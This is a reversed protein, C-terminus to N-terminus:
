DRIAINVTIGFENWSYEGTVKNETVGMEYFMSGSVRTNFRYTASPRLKWTSNQQTEQFSTQNYQKQFTKSSSKDFSLTFNIENKFTAGKFPWIPIPIQFGGKTSYSASISFSSNESKTAGGGSTFNFSSSQNLRITSSVGALWSISVGILPQYNHSFTESSPILKGQDLDWRKTTSYKGSRSHDVSMTKAFEQFFLFKEVGTIKVSWDPILSRMDGWVGKFKDKPNDGLALFTISENGSKNNDNRTETINYDHSFTTRVNKIIDFNLSTRLSRSDTISPGIIFGNTLTTDQGVGTDNTLGFQYRWGPIDLVYSHNVSQDWNYSTQIQKWANFFEYIWILPNPFKTKSKSDQEEEEKDEDKPEDKEEEKEQQGPRPRQGRSSTSKEGEPSYIMNALERPSFSLNIRRNIKSSSQKQFKSLNTFYYRFNVSYSYDTNLWDILRPKYDMKFNQSIDTDKGFDLKTIISKLLDKGNKGEFDADSKHIRGYSLNVSPLLRYGITIQRTSVTNVKRTVPNESGRLKDKQHTDSINLSMNTSNPSYYLKQDAIMNLVPTDALFDFPEFFNNKEFPIAYSISGRWQESESFQTQYNRSFRSSYDVDLSIQDVTYYLYWAKSRSRKKITTGIGFVESYTIQEDLEPDLQRLGFLSKIKKEVTNNSYNTLIDTRPFYKPISRTFSARADIPISLDWDDPLFKHFNLVGSYNQSESTSGSGFQTKIDHFDADKSEWNGNFTLLDALRLSTSLRLATGSERRVDSVRMEDFWIEREGLFTVTGANRIGIRFYRITTLSPNGQVKYYASTNGPLLRVIETAGIERLNKTRSLDDLDIDFENLENWNRNNESFIEQGYEYYNKQDSGFKVFVEIKLGHASDTPLSRLTEDGWVFMRLRKYNVLSMVDGFLTKEAQAIEGPKLDVVRFVMSQEKSVTRTIRDRIGAVGPPSKYRDPNEETNYVTINFLSDNKVFLSSDNEAIGEEEWENGVFDFTAIFVRKREPFVPLNSFWLRVFYVTQFTSDPAGIQDIFEKLPIRYQKWGTKTGDDLKTEGTLWQKSRKDRPDLTFTYQFYDNNLNVQGNGDLDETDPYNASQARSDGETGNIGDYPHQAGRNPENWDDDNTDGTQGSAIGDIGTDEDGDLVGNRNKDETNLGRWSPAGYELRGNNLTKMYWDESIQGVDLNYTVYEPSNTTDEKIWLEIFKTRQQNAFTATSRMIGAWASDAPIQEDRWLEIGLVDTDQGTEANVDRNPWIQKIPVRTYPNFWIIDGRNKDAVTDLVTLRNEVPESPTIKVPPSAQTWTIYRIGLTTTRKTGEFDDIYAVGNNDGTKSNDLTNPDPLVQAFEAEINLTSPENTEVMPLWDAWETLFRPKFRLATNLDWVFNQFPEQGVRVRQDLTSKNMYLATLGIFSDDWFRFEARGGLITKKDLQFITAKEYKIEINSSARKARNSILTIQGTFYDIIYDENRKLPSGNLLVEESGELVNFGLDFTSKTSKSTVIIEFKTNRLREQQDNTNYIRVRNTDALGEQDQNGAQNAFRSGSIPDFPQLGPFILIGEARSILLPNDDVKKDGETSPQSNEDVRDLGLLYLFSKRPDVQQIQEHDGNLNFEIRIDFGAEEINTGGLFYVNRMMLSWAHKHSPQMSQSKILKLVYPLSDNGAVESLLTGVKKGSRTKYALALVENDRVEQKVWLFGRAYDYDYDKGRELPVFTVKELQGGKSEFADINTINQYQPLSPDLVAIGERANQNSYNGTKYVDLEEILDNETPFFWNLLDDSYGPEYLDRYLTDVFFYRNKIFDYDRIISQSERSSGSITLKKQEGKELSAIGTFFFNGVKLESKIGFLGKNSGGFIVYKTSPLSLGINGAEISQVIEDEDGEYRLKLTNEFDFTAESNQEVSVTVKEGIKGEITFQQTQNFRPSFSGRDQVASVAAGSREESRGSLDFSINGTVRLRVRDSGFIRTFTENKIRVPIELELAGSKQEEIEFIKKTVIEKWMLARDHDLRIRIYTDLDVVAPLFFETDDFSEAISIFQGSSDLKVIRRVVPAKHTFLTTDVFFSSLDGADPEFLQVVRPPQPLSIGIQAISDVEPLFVLVIAFLFAQLLRRAKLLNSIINV